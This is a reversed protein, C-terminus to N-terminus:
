LLGVCFKGTDQRMRRAHPNRDPHKQVKKAAHQLRNLLVGCLKRMILDMLAQPIIALNPNVNAILKTRVSYPSLVEIIASFVKLTLRGSGMSAPPDPIDIGDLGECFYPEAYPVTDPRDHVGQGVLLISGDDSLNDCGIARFVNDRALGFQPIGLCFWGLTDLKDLDKITMSSSCFPAWRSHLDVEKLVAVQEFLPVGHLEGEMKISLSGDAERRYYTTIGFLTQSLTWDENDKLMKRANEFISARKKRRKLLLDTPSREWM